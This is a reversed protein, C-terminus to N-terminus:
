TGHTSGCDATAQIIRDPGRRPVWVGRGPSRPQVRTKGYLVGEPEPGSLVVAPSGTDKLRSYIGDYMARSAGRAQRAIILHLGIDGAHDLLSLLPVLPNSGAFREYDDAVLYIDAPSGWWARRAIEDASASAPPIRRRLSDLNASVVNAADHATTAM